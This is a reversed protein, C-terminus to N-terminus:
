EIWAPLLRRGSALPRRGRAPNMAPAGGTRRKARNRLYAIIAGHAQGMKRQVIKAVIDPQFEVQRGPHGHQQAVIGLALGVEQLGDVIQSRGARGVRAGFPLQDVPQRDFLLGQGVGPQHALDDRPSWSSTM